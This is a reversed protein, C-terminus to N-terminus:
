RLNQPYSDSSLYLEFGEQDDQYFFRRESKRYTTMGDIEVSIGWEPFYPNGCVQYGKPYDMDDLVDIKTVVADVDDDLQDDNPKFGKAKHNNISKYVLGIITCFNSDITNDDFALLRSEEDATKNGFYLENIKEDAHYGAEWRCREPTSICLEYDQQDNNV